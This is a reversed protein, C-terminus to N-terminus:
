WGITCILVGHEIRVGKLIAQAATRKLDTPKLVYVPIENFHGLIAASVSEVVRSSILRPLGKLDLDHLRPDVAFFTARDPAYRIATSFAVTSSLRGRILGSSIDLHAIGDIRTAGHRLAITASPIDLTLLAKFDKHLPLKRDIARQITAHDIRLEIPTGRLAFWIIAVAAIVGTVLAACLM